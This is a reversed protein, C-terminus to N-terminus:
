HCNVYEKLGQAYCRVLDVQESGIPCKWTPYQAALSEFFMRGLREIAGKEIRTKYEYISNTSQHCAYCDCVLKVAVLGFIVLKGINWAKTKWSIELPRQQDQRMVTLERNNQDVAEQPFAVGRHPNARTSYPVIAM